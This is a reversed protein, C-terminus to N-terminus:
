VLTHSILQVQHIRFFSALLDERSHKSVIPQAVPLVYLRYFGEATIGFTTKQPIEGLPSWLCTVGLTVFDGKERLM